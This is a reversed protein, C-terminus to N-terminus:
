LIRNAKKFADDIARIAARIDEKLPIIYDDKSNRQVEYFAKRLEGFIESPQSGGRSLADQLLQQTKNDGHTKAQDILENVFNFFADNSNFKRMAGEFITHGFQV